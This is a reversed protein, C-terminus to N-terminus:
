ATLGITQPGTDIPLVLSPPPTLIPKEELGIVEITVTAIESM